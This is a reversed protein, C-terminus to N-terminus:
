ALYSSVETTKCKPCKPSSGRSLFEEGCHLCHFKNLHDYQERVKRKAHALFSLKMILKEPNM